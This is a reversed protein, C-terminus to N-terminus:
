EECGCYEKHDKKDQCNRKMLLESMNSVLARCAFLPPPLLVAEAAMSGDSVGGEVIFHSLGVQLEFCPTFLARSEGGRKELSCSIWNAAEVRDEDIVSWVNSAEDFVFWDAGKSPSEHLETLELQGSVLLASVSRTPLTMDTCYGLSQLHKAGACGNLINCVSRLGVQSICCLIAVEAVIKDLVDGLCSGFQRHLMVHAWSRAPALIYKSGQQVEDNDGPFKVCGDVDPRLSSKKCNSVLVKFKAKHEALLCSPVEMVMM